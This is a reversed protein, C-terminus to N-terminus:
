YSYCSVGRKKLEKELRMAEEFSDCYVRYPLSACVDFWCDIFAKHSYERILNALEKRSTKEPIHIIEIIGIKNANAKRVEFIRDVLQHAEDRSMTTKNATKDDSLDEDHHNRVSYGHKMLKAAKKCLNIKNEAEDYHIEHLNSGILRFEIKMQAIFSRSTRSLSSEPSVLFFVAGMCYWALLEEPEPAFNKASFISDAVHIFAVREDNKLNFSSCYKQYISLYDNENIRMTNLFFDENYERLLNKLKEELLKRKRGKPIYILLPPLELSFFPIDGGLYQDFINKINRIMTEIKKDKMM